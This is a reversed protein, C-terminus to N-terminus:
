LTLEMLLADEGDPYYSKRRGVKKFGVKEYLRLAINNKQSVELLLREVGERKLKKLIEELLLKGWGKGRFPPFIEIWHIEAEPKIDWVVAFGFSEKEGKLIFVRGFPLNLMRELERLTYRNSFKVIRTLDEATAESLIAKEM